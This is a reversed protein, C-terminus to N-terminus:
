FIVEERLSISLSENKYLHIKPWFKCDEILFSDLKKWKKRCKNEKEGRQTSTKM